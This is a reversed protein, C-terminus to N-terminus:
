YRRMVVGRAKVASSPLPSPGTKEPDSYNDAYTSLSFPPPATPRLPMPVSASLCVLRDIFGICNHSTRQNASRAAGSRMRTKISNESQTEKQRERHIYRHVDAQRM